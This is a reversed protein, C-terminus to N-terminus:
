VGREVLKGRTGLATATPFIRRIALRAGIPRRRVLVSRGDRSFSVDVLGQAHSPEATPVPPLLYLAGSGDARWVQVSGDLKGAVMYAGDLSVAAGATTVIAPSDSDINWVRTTDGGSSAVLLRGDPSFAMRRVGQGNGRLVRPQNTVSDDIRWIRVTGDAGAAAVRAGDPHIAVSRLDRDLSGLPALDSATFVRPAGVGGVSWLRVTGDGSATAVYRGDASFTGSTVWLEHGRLVTALPVQTLRTAVALAGEVPGNGPLQGILLSAGTPNSEVLSEAARVLAARRAAIAQIWALGALTSVVLALLVSTAAIAWAIRRKEREVLQTFRPIEADAIDLAPVALATLKDHLSARTILRRWIRLHRTHLEVWGPEPFRETIVAPMPTGPSERVLMVNTGQPAGLFESIERIVWNPSGDTATQNVSETLIVILFRSRLLAPRIRESWIAPTVRERELDRYIRLPALRHFGRPPRYHRLRRSLWDAIRLGDGRRYSIFVDYEFDERRGSWTPAFAVWPLEQPNM